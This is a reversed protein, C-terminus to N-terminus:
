KESFAKIRDQVNKELNRYFFQYDYSHFIGIEYEGESGPFNDETVDTVKLAGRDSDIYAGTFQAIEEKIEGDSNVFCAGYNLDKSAPTGDTKWNLPNIALTKMNQPIMLSSEASEGESNFSIIVGTDTEGQAFKLHPYQNIEERTIRWGIAYCAVLQKQRAEDKFCEKILRLSMDAGQSFGAIIIPRGNNCVAMYYEFAEKVDEFAKELYPEREEISMTNYVNMGIQSYYPAFFRCNDDYIGKEKNVQRKFNEKIDENDLPLNYLGEEKGNFSTPSLFFVDAEKGETDSEFYVWYDEDSYKSEKAFSGETEYYVTAETPESTLVVTDDATEESTNVQLNSCGSLFATCFMLISLILSLRSKFFKM